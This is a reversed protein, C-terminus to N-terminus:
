GGSRGFFVAWISSIGIRHDALAAPARPRAVAKPAGKALLRGVRRTINERIGLPPTVTKGSTASWRPVRITLLNVASVNSGVAGEATGGGTLAGAFCRM